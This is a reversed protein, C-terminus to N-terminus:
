PDPRRLTLTGPLPDGEDWVVGFDTATGDHKIRISGVGSPDVDAMFTVRGFIRHVLTAPPRNLITRKGSNVLFVDFNDPDSTRTMLIEDAGNSIADMLVRNVYRVVPTGGNYVRREGTPSAGKGALRAIHRACEPCVCAQKTGWLSPVHPYGPVDAGAPLECYACRWDETAESAETRARTACDACISVTPSDPIADADIVVEVRSQCFTCENLSM